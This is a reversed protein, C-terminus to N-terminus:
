IVQLCTHVTIRASDDITSSGFSSQPALNRGTMQSREDSTVILVLVCMQIPSPRFVNLCFGSIPLCCWFTDLDRSKQDACNCLVFSPDQCPVTDKGVGLAAGVFVGPISAAAEHSRCSVSRWDLSITRSGAGLTSPPNM